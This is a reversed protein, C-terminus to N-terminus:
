KKSKKPAPKEKKGFIFIYLIELIGLTNLVMFVVFWAKHDNKAARWLAWTKWILGWILLPIMLFGIAGGFLGAGFAANSFLNNVNLM